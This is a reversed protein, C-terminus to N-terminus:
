REGKVRETNPNKVNQQRRESLNLRPWSWISCLIDQLIPIVFTEGHTISLIGARTHAHTDIKHPTHNKCINKAHTTCTGLRKGSLDVISVWKHIGTIYCLSENELFVNTILRNPIVVFLLRAIHGLRHWAIPWIPAPM